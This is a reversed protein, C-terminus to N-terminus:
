PRSAVELREVSGTYALVRECGNPSTMGNQNEALRTLRGDSPKTTRILSM